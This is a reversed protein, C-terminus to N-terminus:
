TGKESDKKKEEEGVEGEEGNVLRNSIHNGYSKQSRYSCHSFM